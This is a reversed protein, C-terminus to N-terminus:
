DIAAKGCKSGLGIGKVDEWLEQVNGFSLPRVRGGQEGVGDMVWEGIRVFARSVDRSHFWIALVTPGLWKVKRIRYM